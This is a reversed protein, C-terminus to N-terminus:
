LYIFLENRVGQVLEDIVAIDGDNRVVLTVLVKGDFFGLLSTEKGRASFQQVFLGSLPKSAYDFLKQTLQKMNIAEREFSVLNFVKGKFAIGAAIIDPNDRLKEMFRNYSM